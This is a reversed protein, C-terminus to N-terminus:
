LTARTERPLLLLHHHVDKHVSCSRLCRSLEDSDEIVDCEDCNIEVIMVLVLMRYIHDVDECNQVFCLDGGGHADGNESLSSMLPFFRKREPMARIM